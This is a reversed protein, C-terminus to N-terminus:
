TLTPTITVTILYLTLTALAYLVLLVPLLKKADVKNIISRYGYGGALFAITPPFFSLGIQNENYGLEKLFFPAGTLWAFFGGSCIAYILVNGIYKKSKLFSLYSKDAAFGLAKNSHSSTKREGKITLTYLILLVAVIALAVFISRWGFYNLLFAGILPALAPSL